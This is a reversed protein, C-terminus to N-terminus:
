VGAKQQARLAQEYCQLAESYRELRNFVGGKGLYAMTMSQDLAIARDYCDIAEDLKGLKEFTAGKKVFADANTPDLAIAEDFCALATDTQQLNLLTQGKGLLLAVRGARDEATPQNPETAAELDTLRAELRELSSRLRAQGAQTPDLPALGTGSGSLQAYGPGGIPQVTVNAARRSGSRAVLLVVIMLGVFGIGAVVGVVTLTFRHSNHLNAVERDRQDTVTQELQRLRGELEATQRRASAEAEARAEQVARLTAQQQEQLSKYSNIVNQTWEAETDNVSNTAAHAAGALLLIFCM